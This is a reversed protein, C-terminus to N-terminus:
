PLSSHSNASDPEHAPALRADVVDGDAGVLPPDETRAGLAFAPELDGQPAARVGRRAAGRGRARVRRSATTPARRSSPGTSRRGARTCRSRRGSRRRRPAPVRVVWGTRRGRGCCRRSRRAPRSRSPAVDEEAAIGYMALETFALLLRDGSTVATRHDDEALAHRDDRMAPEEIEPAGDSPPAAAPLVSRRAGARPMPSCRGDRRGAQGDRAADRGRRRGGAGRARKSPTMIGVSSSGNQGLRRVTCNSPQHRRAAHRGARGPDGRPGAADM